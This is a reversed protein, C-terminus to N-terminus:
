ERGRTSAAPTLLAETAKLVAQVSIGTICAPGTIAGCPPTDLRGCPSCALGMWVLRQRHAANGPAFVLPDAPGYLGVVPTGMMAALHLPGSDTAIVLRAMRHLAALGGVSLPRNLKAARRGSAEVVADVLGGEVPGGVVLPATHHRAALAAAVTGWRQSPWNKLPWGSGPHLVIPRDDINAERLGTAAEIQEAETPRVCDAVSVQPLRPVSVGFHELAGTALDVAMLRAHRRPSLPLAHTLFPRTEPRDYGLRVPIRAAAVLAGSWPDGPRLVLAIDFRGEVRGRERAVIGAWEDGDFPANPPPFPAVLVADVHPCHRAADEGAQGVLYTIRATPLVRRLLGAAPLTLLVDGLHDPRALLLRAPMGEPVRPSRDNGSSWIRSVGCAARFPRGYRAAVDAM